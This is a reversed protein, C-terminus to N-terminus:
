RILKEFLQIAKGIALRLFFALSAYFVGQAFGAAIIEAHM